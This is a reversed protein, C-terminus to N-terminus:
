ESSSGAVKAIKRLEVKLDHLEGELQSVESALENRKETLDAVVSEVQRREFALKVLATDHAARAGDLQDRFSREVDAVRRRVDEAGDRFLSELRAREAGIASKISESARIAESHEAKLAGVRPGVDALFQEAEAAKEAAKALDLLPGLFQVANKIAAAADKHKVNVDPIGGRDM